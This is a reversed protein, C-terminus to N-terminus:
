KNKKFNLEITRCIWYSDVMDEFPKLWKKGAKYKNIDNLVNLRLENENLIKDDTANNLFAEIMQDKNFNGKGAVKKITKPSLTKFNIKNINLIYRFIYQYGILKSLSSGLSNYSFGEIAVQECKYEKIVDFLLQMCIKADEIDILENEIYDKKCNKYEPFKFLECNKLNNLIEYNLKEGKTLKKGERYFGIFKLDNETKICIAPSNISIDLGIIM